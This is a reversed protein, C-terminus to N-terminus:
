LLEMLMESVFSIRHLLSLVIIVSGARIRFDSGPLGSFHGTQSTWFTKLPSSEWFASSASPHRFADMPHM